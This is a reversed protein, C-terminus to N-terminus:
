SSVARLLWSAAERHSAVVPCLAPKRVVRPYLVGSGVLAWHDSVRKDTLRFPTIHMYVGPMGCVLAPTRVYAGHAGPFTPEDVRIEAVDFRENTVREYLARDRWTEPVLITIDKFYARRRTATYMYASANTMVTKIQEILSSDEPVDEGIAVVLNNYGNNTLTM